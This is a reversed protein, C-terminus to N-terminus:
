AAGRRPPPVPGKRRAHTKNGAHPASAGEGKAAGNVAQSIAPNGALKAIKVDADAVEVTGASSATASCHSACPQVRATMARIASINSALGRRLSRTRSRTPSTNPKELGAGQPHDSPFRTEFPSPPRAPTSRGIRRSLGSTASAVAPEEPMLDSGLGFGQAPRFGCLTVNPLSLDRNLRIPPPMAIVAISDRAGCRGRKRDIDILALSGVSHASFSM